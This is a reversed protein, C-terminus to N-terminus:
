YKDVGHNGAANRCEFFDLRVHLGCPQGFLLSLSPLLCIRLHAGLIGDKQGAGGDFSAACAGAAAGAGFFSTGAGEPSPGSHPMHPEVYSKTKCKEQKGRALTEACSARGAYRSILSVAGPCNLTKHRVGTSAPMRRGIARLSGSSTFFRRSGLTSSSASETTSRCQISAPRVPREPLRMSNGPRCIVM